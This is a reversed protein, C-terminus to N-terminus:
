TKDGRLLHAAEGASELYAPNQLIVKM